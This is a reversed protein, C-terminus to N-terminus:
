HAIVPRGVAGSENNGWCWAVGSTDIGCTLVGGAALAALRPVAVAVPAARHETTGDGLVGGYGEGWCWASGEATLACTRGAGAALRAFRHGGLVPVPQLRAPAGDGRGDGVANGSGWCWAQGEASLACSHNPGVVVESYTRDGAVPVPESSSAAHGSGLQGYANSGVCWAHGTGDLGCAHAEGLAISTFAVSSAAAWQAPETSAAPGTSGYSFGTGWCWLSGDAKLGCTLNAFLSAAVQVFAHGGGVAFPEKDNNDQASDGYGWCWAAGDATLGCTFRHSATLSSLVLGGAVSLPRASCPQGVGEVCRQPAPAGLQGYENSGWCWPAGAATLMCAHLHGLGMASFRQITDAPAPQPEDYNPV